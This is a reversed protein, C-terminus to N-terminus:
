EHTYKERWLLDGYMRCYSEYRDFLFAGTEAAKRVACDPEHTHTCGAIRCRSAFREFEPFFFRLDHSDLGYIDFERVGPTDIIEGGAWTELCALVTTHRGRNYKESLEATKRLSGSLVNLLSTKGVGSQGALVVRKGTIRERLAGLCPADACAQTRLVPIDRTEYDGLREEIEPGAPQDNKNLCVLAPIGSLEAAVLLRDLFRPRFPPSVPSTVCVILDVNAAITQPCRGKKNWRLFANKRGIRGLLAAKGSDAADPMFIVEDGAALPNYDGETNKLIKGKIRCELLTGAARSRVIFINNAGYLVTGEGSNV